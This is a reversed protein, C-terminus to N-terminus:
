VSSTGSYRAAKMIEHSLHSLNSIAHSLQSRMRCIRYICYRMCYIRYISRAHSLFKNSIVTQHRFTSGLRPPASAAASSVSFSHRLAAGVVSRFATVRAEAACDLGRRRGRGGGGGGCRCRHADHLVRQSLNSIAHSLHTRMRCIRYICYRMRYIRYISRSHSLFKNSIVTQHRFTSGLRPPPPPPLSSSPVVCPPSWSLASSPRSDSSSPSCTVLLSVTRCRLPILARARKKVMGRNTETAM